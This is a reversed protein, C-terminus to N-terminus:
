AKFNKMAEEARKRMEEPSFDEKHTAMSWRNGFPDTLIGYRDGWFQDALPMEVKAGADTARKWAADVDEVYLHCGSQTPPGMMAESLMIISNGIKVEAHMIAGDPGAMRGREEAGFAKKYFDIAQAAGKIRMFPTVTAYGEPIAKVKAM